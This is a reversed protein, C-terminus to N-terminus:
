KAAVYKQMVHIVFNFYITSSLIIRNDTSYGNNFENNLVIPILVVTPKLTTTLVACGTKKSHHQGCGCVVRVTSNVRNKLIKPLFIRSIKKFFLPDFSTHPFNHNHSCKKSRLAPATWMTRHPGCLVGCHPHDQLRNLLPQFNINM